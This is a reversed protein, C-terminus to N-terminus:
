LQAQFFSPLLELSSLQIHLVTTYFLGAEQFISIQPDHQTFMVSAM